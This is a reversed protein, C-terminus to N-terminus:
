SLGLAVMSAEVGTAETCALRVNAGRGNLTEHHGWAVLRLGENLLNLAANKDRDHCVGCSPCNWQRTELSLETLKHGCCSCLKSSPFWRDVQVVQKRKWDAKYKLQRVFEGFGADNFSKAFKTRTLGKLNLTEICITSYKNTIGATLQHQFNNRQNGIKRHLKAVTLKAAARRNSKMQRRSLTRQARALKNQNKRFLKPAPVSTTDDSFTCYNSLGLDIGVENTLHNTICTDNAVECVISVWWDGCLDQKFSAGKIKGEPQQNKQVRIWGISPCWVKNSKFQTGQRSKFRLQDKHRSKFKPFKRTGKYFAKMATYWDKAAEQLSQANCLNLWNCEPEKKIGTLLCNIDFNTYGKGTTEYQKQSLEICKNWVWRRAGAFQRLQSLQVQNPKLKFKYAKVVM